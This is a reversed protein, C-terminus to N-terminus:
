ALAALAARPIRVRLLVIGALVLMAPLVELITLPEAEGAPDHNQTTVAM